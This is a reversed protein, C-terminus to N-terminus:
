GKVKTLARASIFPLRNGGYKVAGLIRVKDGTKVAVNKTMDYYHTLDVLIEGDGDVLSFFTNEPNLNKVSGVFIM